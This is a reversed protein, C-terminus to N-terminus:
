ILTLEKEQCLVRIALSMQEELTGLGVLSIATYVIMITHSLSYVPVRLIHYSRLAGNILDLIMGM